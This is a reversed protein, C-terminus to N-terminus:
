PVNFTANDSTAVGSSTTSTVTASGSQAVYLYFNRYWEGPAIYSTQSAAYAGGNTLSVRVAPSSSSLTVYVGGHDSTSISTDEATTLKIQCSRWTGVVPSAASCNVLRLFSNRVIFQSSQSSSTFGPASATVTYTGAVPPSVYDFAALALNEVRYIGTALSATGFAGRSNPTVIELAAAGTRTLTIPLPGDTGAVATWTYTGSKTIGTTIIPAFSARDTLTTVY